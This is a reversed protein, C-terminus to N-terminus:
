GAKEGTVKGETDSIIVIKLEAERKPERPGGKNPVGEGIENLTIASGL